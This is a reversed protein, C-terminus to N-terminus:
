IVLLKKCNQFDALIKPQELGWCGTFGGDNRTMKGDNQRNKGVLGCNKGTFLWWKRTSSGWGVAMGGEAAAEVACRLEGAGGHLRGPLRGAAWGPRRLQHGPSRSGSFSPQVPHSFGSM